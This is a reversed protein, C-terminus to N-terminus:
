DADDYWAPDALPVLVFGEAGKMVALGGLQAQGDLAASPVDRAALRLYIRVLPSVSGVFARALRYLSERRKLDRAWVLSRADGRIIARVGASPLRCRSGLLGGFSRGITVPHLIRVEEGTFERITTECGTVTRLCGALGSPSIPGLFLSALAAAGGEERQRTDELVGGPDAALPATLGALAATSRLAASRGGRAYAFASSTHVLSTEVAHMLRDVPMDLFRALGGGKRRDHIIREVDAHPLPSEPTALGPSYLVLDVGDEGFAVDEIEAPSFALSPRSRYVLRRARGATSRLLWRLVAVAPWINWRTPHLLIDRALPHRANIGDQEPQPSEEEGRDQAGAAVAGAGAPARDWRTEATAPGAGGPMAADAAPGAAAEQEPAGGALRSEADPGEAGDFPAPGAGTERSDGKPGPEVAAGSGGDATEPSGGSASPAGAM